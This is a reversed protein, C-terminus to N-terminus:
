RAPAPHRELHQIGDDDTRAVYVGGPGFGVVAEHDTLTMRRVLAGQRDVVDYVTEPHAATPTRRIWLTGDPAPLLADNQFPPILDPWDPVDAITRPTTGRREADRALWARKEDDDLPRRPDPLPPGTLPPAAPPFWSVRFPDLRAVAIWGDSFLVAQEGVALPNITVDVSTPHDRPGKIAVRAPRSKLSTVDARAGTARDIRVLSLSDPLGAASAGAVRRPVAAIVRGDRDAGLARRAGSRIPPADPGVTAVIEEGRLLLWRGGKLDVLLTSDAPLGFLASPGAYEGPGAGARGVPRGPGGGAPGLWLRGDGVDLVLLRGDALERVGAVRNLELPWARDVPPLRAPPPETQAAVPAALLALLLTPRPARAVPTM